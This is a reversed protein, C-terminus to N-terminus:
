RQSRDPFPGRAMVLATLLVDLERDLVLRYQQLALDSEQLAEKLREDEVTIDVGWRSPRLEFYAQEFLEASVDLVSQFDEDSSLEVGEEKESM